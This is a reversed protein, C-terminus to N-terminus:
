LRNAYRLIPRNVSGCIAWARHSYFIVHRGRDYRVGGRIGDM